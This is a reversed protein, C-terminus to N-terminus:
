DILAIVSVPEDKQKFYVFTEGSVGDDQVIVNFNHRDLETESHYYSTVVVGVIVLLPWYGQGPKKRLIMM